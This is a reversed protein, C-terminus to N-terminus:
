EYGFDMDDGYQHVHILAELRERFMTVVNLLKDSKITDLSRWLGWLGMSDPDIGNIWNEVMLESAPMCFKVYYRSHSDSGWCPIDSVLEVSPLIPCNDTLDILELVAGTDKSLLEFTEIFFIVAM